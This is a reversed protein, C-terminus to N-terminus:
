HGTAILITVIIAAATLIAGVVAVTAGINLRQESRTAAAGATGGTITDLRSTLRLEMERQSETNRAIDKALADMRSGVEARTPFSATQDSLQQRFENVAEFRKDAAAEAKSVAKEQSALATTVAQEAAKFAADLAKTQTAYRENLMVRLDDMSQRVTADATSLRRDVEAYLQRRQEDQARNLNTILEHLTDVTWGSVSAETEGSM